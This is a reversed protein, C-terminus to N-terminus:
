NSLPLSSCLVYRGVERFSCVLPLTIVEDGSLGKTGRPSAKDRPTVELSKPTSLNFSEPIGANRREERGGKRGTGAGEQGSQEKGM